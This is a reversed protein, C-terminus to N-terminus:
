KFLETLDSVSEIDALREAIIDKYTDNLEFGIWDRGEEKCAVATSGSGMFPDLVVDGPDTLWTVFWRPLDPHFAAPHKNGRVTGSTRFDFVTTPIKGLPHPQVIRSGKHSATGDEDVKKHLNEPISAKMRAISVESYPERVADMDYKFNKRTKAFHFIYEIKDDLRCHNPWTKGMPIGSKKAWIYRDVLTWDTQRVIQCVLDMVYISRSGDIVRDNINLIFSGRDKTARYLETALPLFWEAYDGEDYTTVKKGYSLTDAYPPSTITLDISSDELQKSLMMSDGIHLGTKM